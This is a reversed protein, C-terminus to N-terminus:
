RCEDLGARVREVFERQVEAQESVGEPDLRRGFQDVVDMLQRRAEACGHQRLSRYRETMSTAPTTSRYTSVTSPRIRKRTPPDPGAISNQGLRSIAPVSQAPCASCKM